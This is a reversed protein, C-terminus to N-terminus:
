YHEELLIELRDLEMKFKKTREESLNDKLLKYYKKGEEILKDQEALHYLLGINSNFLNLAEDYENASILNVFQDAAERNREERKKNPTFKEMM